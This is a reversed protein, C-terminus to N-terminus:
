YTLTTLSVTVSYYGEEEHQNGIVRFYYTGTSYCDWIIMSELNIIDVGANEYASLQAVSPEVDNNYDLITEGNKSYLYLETDTLGNINILYRNNANAQFQFWDADGVTIIHNQVSSGINIETANAVANDPEYGDNELATTWSVPPIEKKYKNFYSKYIGDQFDNNYQRLVLMGDEFSYHFEDIYDDHEYDIIYTLMNDKNDLIKASVIDYQNKLGNNYFKIDDENIEIISAHFYNDSLPDYQTVLRDHGEIEKSIIWKGYISDDVDDGSSECSLAFIALLPLLLLLLKKM